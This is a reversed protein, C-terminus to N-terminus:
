QIYSQKHSFFTLHESVTLFFATSFPYYGTLFLLINELKHVNIEARCCSTCINANKLTFSQLFFVFWFFCDFNTLPSKGQLLALSANLKIKCFLKTLHITKTTIKSNVTFFIHISM